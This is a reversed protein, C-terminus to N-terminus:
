NWQIAFYVCPTQGVNTLNHLVMSGLYVVDGANAKQHETGIQMEANGELMLIIEENKHTHPDHSNFGVNLTTVHIDFRTFMNTPRTFYQRVGGKDHPKFTIANWDLVFSGGGTKGRAADPKAVSRYIMEYFHAPKDGNNEFRVKDGPLVSVVSGKDLIVASDNLKVKVPGNKIIFFREYLTDAKYSMSKGKSLTVANMEHLSLIAGSGKFVKKINGNENSVTANSDITYVKSELPQVQSFASICLLCSIICAINKM